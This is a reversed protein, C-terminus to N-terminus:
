NCFPLLVLFTRSCRAYARPEAGCVLAPVESPVNGRSGIVFKNRATHRDAVSSMSFRWKVSRLNLEMALNTAEERTLHQTPREDDKKGVVELGLRLVQENAFPDCGRM